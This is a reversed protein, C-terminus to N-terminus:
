ALVLISQRSLGNVKEELTALKFNQIQDIEATNHFHRQKQGIIIYQM